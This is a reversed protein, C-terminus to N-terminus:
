DGGLGAIGFGIRILVEERPGRWLFRVSFSLFLSGVVRGRDFKLMWRSAATSTALWTQVRARPADHPRPRIPTHSPAPTLPTAEYPLHLRPLLPSKPVLPLHRQSTLPSILPPPEQYSVNTARSRQCFQIRLRSEAFSIPRRTIEM